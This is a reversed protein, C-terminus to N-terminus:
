LPAAPSPPLERTLVTDVVHPPSFALLVRGMATNHVTLRHATSMPLGTRHSLETLTHANGETYAGVIATIKSIVSRGKDGSNRAM